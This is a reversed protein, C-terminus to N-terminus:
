KRKTEERRFNTWHNTCAKQALNRSLKQKNMQKNKKQHAHSLSTTIRDASSQTQIKTKNTTYFLLGACPAVPPQTITPRTNLHNGKHSNESNQYERPNTRQYDLTKSDTSGSWLILAQARSPISWSKAMRSLTQDLPLIRWPQVM